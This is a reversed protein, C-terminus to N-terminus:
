TASWSAAEPRASRARRRASRWTTWRGGGHSTRTTTTSGFRAQTGGVGALVASTTRPGPASATQRLVNTWTAGGDISVDVDATDGLNEYEQAFTLVAGGYASFDIPATRLEEDLDVSGDCDSNVLAFAGSGGTPNGTIEGCPSFDTKILWGAGQGTNNIVSWGDPLVGGDFSESWVVPGPDGPIYGPATCLAADVTLNFNQVFALPDHPAPAAAPVPVFVDAVKPNYGPIVSTVLVHYTFGAPITLSYYGSVPDTFLTDSFGKATIDLRAYLPWNGGSGDKVVGNMITSASPTLVFDQVTTEGAVVVVGPVAAPLYGTKSATMDYPGEPLLSFSYFGAVDTLTTNAGATVTVGSIPNTGDTVHGELNGANPALTFNQVTDEADTVDATATGVDFGTKTVTMDYSGVPLKDFSYHGAADTMRSSAGATVVAGAIPNTGDTVDGELQGGPPSVCSPYKFSGIRTKFDFDTTTAYYEQTYWFTCEDVPDLSMSSYDGWRNFSNIQSGTGAFWINENGMTNLTDGALRGVIGISPFSAADSKSFGLAMNQSADQTISAMWRYTTDPTFTSAQYMTPTGSPDRVEYWRVGTRGGADVTQNTVLSEHDGWNRYALRNMLRDGLTDLIEGGLQPVCTTSGPCPPFVFPANGFEVPGTFTSNAPTAFDVHFQYINLTGVTPDWWTMFYNPAGAPPPNLGDMDSPLGGGDPPTLFSVMTAPGGALMATRDFAASTMGTFASATFTNFAVYYGDPWIGLKPYDGWGQALSGITFEYLNYAGAPDGTQSVAFCQYSPGNPYNPVAFQTLVWRDALRDYKVMPDGDNDAECPGGFGVFPSNGPFPGNVINGSKDYVTWVLNIFQVYNNPGVDGNTDPPVVRGGVVTVNDDESGGDFQNVIAPPPTAGGQPGQVRQDTTGASSIRKPLALENHVQRKAGAAPPGVLRFDRQPPSVGHRSAASVQPGQSANSNEAVLSAGLLLFCAGAAVTRAYLGFATLRGM